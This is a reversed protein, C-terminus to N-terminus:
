LMRFRLAFRMRLKDGIVGNTPIAFGDGAQLYGEIWARYNDNTGSHFFIFTRGSGAIEPGLGQQSPAVRTMMETALKQALFGNKGQYSQILASVFAGLENGSTWLGSAALEPFTQWGRPPAIVRGQADHGKAINGRSAPLPSMFTSRAM